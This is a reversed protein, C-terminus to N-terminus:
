LTGWGSETTFYIKKVDIAYLLNRCTKCPMSMRANGNKNLRVNVVILDALGRRCRRIADLEAHWKPKFDKIHYGYKKEPEHKRNVGQSVFENNRIFFTWHPFHLYEPHEPLDKRCKLLIQTLMSKKM